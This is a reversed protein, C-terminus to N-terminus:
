EGGKPSTDTAIGLEALKNETTSIRRELEQIAAKKFANQAVTSHLVERAIEEAPCFRDLDAQDVNLRGYTKLRSLACRLAELLDLLNIGSRLDDKSLLKGMERVGLVTRPLEWKERKTKAVNRM